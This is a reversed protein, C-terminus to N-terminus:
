EMTDHWGGRLLKCLREMFDVHWGVKFQNALEHYTGRMIFPDPVNSRIPLSLNEIEDFLKRGAIKKQNETLQDCYDELDEKMILFLRNWEDILRNEYEKLDNVFLLQERVWQSRQRYANYYDRICRKLRDNSIAILGLQKIFIRNEPTLQDLEHDTPQYYPDVDIPLSDVKYEGGIDNMKKQLQRYSIFVPKESVLCQIASIIWWGIIKEYVREEFPQLTIIRVYPMISEKIAGINPSMDCVYIHRVLNEQQKEDLSKFAEYYNNNTKSAKLCAVKRMIELAKKWDRSIKNQLYFAISKDQAKATTIIVFDTAGEFNRINKIHDCWCKITRWYDTSNDSLSGPRYLQHKIQIMIQPEDKEAFAVDDFKEICLQSDPNRSELLLLLASLVQYLYGSLQGSADHVNNENM